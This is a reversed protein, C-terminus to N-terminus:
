SPSSNELIFEGIAILIRAVWGWKSISKKGNRVVPQETTEFTCEKGDSTATCNYNVGEQLGTVDIVEVYSVGGVVFETADKRNLKYSTTANYKITFASLLAIVAVAIFGFHIRKM